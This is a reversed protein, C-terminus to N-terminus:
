KAQSFNVKEIKKIWHVLIPERFSNLYRLIDIKFDTKSDNDSTDYEEILPFKPSV